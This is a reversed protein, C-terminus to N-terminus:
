FASRLKSLAGALSRIWHEADLHIGYFLVSVIVFIVLVIRKDFPPCINKKTLALASLSAIAGTVLGVVVETETHSGLVVRSLAISGILLGAAINVLLGPMGKTQRYCLAAITIYVGASVAAHGSPSHLNITSFFGTGDLTVIKLIAIAGAAFLFSLLLALGQRRSGSLILYASILLALIGTFGSDGLKTVAHFFVYM